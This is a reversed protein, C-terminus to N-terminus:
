PNRTFTFAFRGFNGEDVSIDFDMQFSGDCSNYIGSGAYALNHYGFASSALVTKDAVVAFTAPNIHMVLPGGDENVGELAELGSVFITYPDGPDATITINGESNWDDPGSLSHYSGVARTDIFGCAVRVNLVANSRTTEGGITLLVEINFVDGNEIESPNLGLAQITEGSVLRITAPFSTAEAIEIRSGDNNYSGLLVVKEAQVGQDLSLVFEVYSNELDESAFVGPGIDSIVPVVAANRRGAPDDVEKTCSFAFATILVILGAINKNKM